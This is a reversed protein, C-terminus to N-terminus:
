RADLLTITVENLSNAANKSTSSEAIVLDRETFFGPRKPNPLEVENELMFIATSMSPRDGPYQQVCLLGVHISRLVEKLYQSVAQCTDALELSRGEKHLIWAHGLLNLHHDSHSFGWNKKGSVIELVLVGFSYVDSKISFVGGLVYEPSMYGYTGVIRRTKAGTEDGGFSILGRAVGNIINFRKPWDLLRSKTEDFLIFDLSKNPMYEYVLMKKEKEICCGLLKVLNRHQLKSICVVENKFEDIGQESTKSLRKVAIEQGDELMGKYVPGFGGEGLKNDIAFNNTAKSITSFDFSPLELEENQLEIYREGKKLKKKTTKRIHLIWILGLLVIIGMSALLSWTLIEGRREEKDLESAAM